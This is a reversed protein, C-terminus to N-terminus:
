SSRFLRNFIHTLCFHHQCFCYCRDEGDECTINPDSGGNLLACMADMNGQDCALMYATQNNKNIANVPVGHDLLLQLTEQDCERQLLKHLCTDGHVDVISTDAGARMLVNVSERHETNCALLLATAGDNNVANIDAGHDIIAQLTEKSITNRVANHLLTNGNVDAINPDARANLLLKIADVNGNECALALATQKQKNMANVDTGHSIIAQLAEKRCNGCVAAHLWTHGEADMKNHEAGANLLLSMADINGKYCSIILATEHKKNTANVDAGHEIIIQLTKSTINHYVASHLLTDCEDDAINPDAGSTLLLGMLVEQRKQCAILLATINSNNIANVDAGHDIIEGIVEKTCDQAVAVHLCTNRGIDGITPDARANLLVNIADENCKECAIMLATKNNKNTANVDAGHDIIAQLVEKSCDGYAAYHLLTDGEDDSIHPNAGANILVNIVHKNGKHSARMLATQNSNNTSNVDVGHGIIIELVEHSSDGTAAYHLCTQADDDSIDFNAGANLLLNMVDINGKHCAIMLATRNNKNTANVDAGHNIIEEIVEKTCNQGVAAHLCTDGNIDGITPDTGANLLMNIADENSNNCAFMLATHNNKNTANVDAGHDIIAQLVEKNCDLYAAYHLGTLDYNDSIDPNAGANLLANIVDKNGKCCAKLLPTFNMKNTANVDAGHNIIEEIVEKTCGKDVAVHLCTDGDNDRITPDARANLLVNIAAENCMKCALMLVTQSNKSTANVDAGHNIITQLIEKSCDGTAAYHLLTHGDDDVSIDTNAGANLLVNIIDINRKHYAIMLATGNNKTTANVDVGQDIITALVEKSCANTVAHHLLTCGYDDAIHPDAGANLLVSMADINGKKCAKMLTTENKKNTANVDSGHDIVIQLIEKSCDGSAAYHLLTDGDDDCLDTNAGANLLVIINDINGNHYAIMLATKNHKSTANVDAGHKIITQLFESSCNGFSAYHLWTYGDVDTIGPDAGANLLVNIGDINGKQCANMLPTMNKKNAANVDAGHKIITQLFESSCNGSAAYHLWTHGDVDTIGPDAGANLLVNIGDINGKQCANMLPTMNKKNAANVDAGHNIIKKIVEKTCNESVAAHLCTDGATDAITTDARATLLASIADENCKQCAIILATKNHKSTANVDAGHKIITQLFESSCNGFSAYHLWTHGDADTIGPDAGANLLVDIGDINGKRCANMLPTINKKKAANVDAGHNIIKKIVEKTCDHVVAIHLCTNIDPDAKFKLLVHIADENCKRCAIQLATENYRSTANVDAGHNIIARIIKKSCNGLVSAQLCTFGDNSAMNPSSGAELLIQVSDQQRCMCALWLATRRHINRADLQAHHAIIERLIVNTCCGIVANYLSTCGEVNSINPDARNKLLLIISEEQAAGCALFLATEERNNVANVNMDQEIINQLAEKNCNGLVAVHLCTNGDPKTITVDAGAEILFMVSESQGTRCACLLATTGDKRKADVHAGHNILAQLIDKSCRGDVAALLCSYDVEDAITPDAGAKLLVKISDIQRYACSILLPTRLKKNVVNVDAGHYIIRELTETSCDAAIAQHLCTDGGGDAISPDAFAKLLCRVSSAQATSCALLLPTSGDKSVANVNANHAIMNQLTETSCYGLISAHLCTDGNKDLTNPDAGRDLLIKVLDEQGDSCALWLASQRRNNVANVVAGCEIIAQVTQMSCSHYSAPLPSINSCPEDEGLLWPRIDNRLQVAVHLSTNGLVDKANPDAKCALLKQIIAENGNDVAIHLPTQRNITKCNLNVDQDLLLDVIDINSQAVAIHLPAHGASSVHNVGTSAALLFKVNQVKQQFCAAHLQIWSIKTGVDQHLFKESLEHSYSYYGRDIATHLPTWSQTDQIEINASFQTVLTKALGPVHNEFAIHLLTKGENDQHNVDYGSNILLAIIELHNGICAAYLPTQGNEDPVLLTNQNELIDKVINLQGKLSANYLKDYINGEREMREKGYEHKQPANSVKMDSIDTLSSMDDVIYKEEVDTSTNSSSDNTTSDAIGSISFEPVMFEDDTQDDDSKTGYASTTFAKAAQLTECTEWDYTLDDNGTMESSHPIQDVTVMMSDRLNHDDDKSKDTQLTKNAESIHDKSSM